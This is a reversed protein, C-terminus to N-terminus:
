RSHIFLRHIDKKTAYSTCIEGWEERKIKNTTNKQLMLTEM